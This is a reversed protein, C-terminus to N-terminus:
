LTWGMPSRSQIALVDWTLAGALAIEVSPAIQVWSGTTINALTIDSVSVYVTTWATPVAGSTGVGWSAALGIPSRSLRLWLQGGTRQGSSIQNPATHAVLDSYVTAVFRGIKYSGDCYLVWIFNNSADAGAFLGINASSEGDGSVLDVRCMVDWWEPSGNGSANLTSPGGTTGADVGLTLVGGSWALSTGAPTSDTWAAGTMPDVLAGLAARNAAPAVALPTAIAASVVTSGDGTVVNGSTKASFRGWSTVNRRLLDGQAESTITLDSTTTAISTTGSGTTDGTLTITGGGGGGGALPLGPASPDTASV